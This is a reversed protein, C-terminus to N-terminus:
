SATAVKVQTLLADVLEAPVHAAHPTTANAAAAATALRLSEAMPLGRTRGVALGAAFTDGGGIPSVLEVRPVPVTLVDRGDTAITPEAGRTVVVWGRIVLAHGTAWNVLDDPTGTRNGLIMADAVGTLEAANVKVVDPRADIARRLPEGAVDVLTWVGLERGRRVCRAVYDDSLGPALSGSLVLVGPVDGAIHDGVAAVLRDGDAATVPRAEEVLETATGAADDIVTLSMRTQAAVDVLAHRVGADDLSDRLQRGRLGGAFGLCVPEGGLTKVVRAVNVAKGAAYEYVDATRNVADLTLRAFRMTRAVTPTTGVCLVAGAAPPPSV